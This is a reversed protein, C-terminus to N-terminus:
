LRELTIRFVAGGNANNGATITGHHLGVIRRALPLGLGTGRASRTYFPEFIREEEGAPIGPGADSVEFVLHGNEAFVAAGLAFLCFAVLRVSTPLTFARDLATMTLAYALTGILLILLACVTDLLRIRGRAKGLQQDVYKEYGAAGKVPELDTAM